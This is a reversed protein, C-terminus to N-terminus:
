KGLKGGTIKNFFSLIAAHPVMMGVSDINAKLVVLGIVNGHDDFVPAGSMGPNVPATTQVYSHGYLVRNTNSVIGNTMTYALIRKGVGPSGIISVHDGTAVNIKLPLLVTSVPTTNIKLLALDRKRDIAILEANAKRNTEVNKRTQKYSVIIKLKKRKPLGHACTLIYGQKSVFFGSSVLGHSFIVVVSSLYKQAILHTSLKKTSASRIGDLMSHTPVAGHKITVKTDRYFPAKTLKAVRPTKHPKKLLSRERESWNLRLCYLSKRKLDDEGVLLINEGNPSFFIKDISAVEEPISPSQNIAIGSSPNFLKIKERTSAAVINLKPNFAVAAPNMGVSLTSVLKRPNKSEFVGIANDKVTKPDCQLGSDAAYAYLSGDNSIAFDTGFFGPQENVKLLSLENSFIRYSLVVDVSQYYRRLRVGTIINVLSGAYRRMQLSSLLIDGSPSILLKKGFAGPLISLENSKEDFLAIKFAKLVSQSDSAYVSVYSRTSAPRSVIDLAQYPLPTTKLVKLNKKSIFDISNRALALFYKKRDVVKIYSKKTDVTKLITKGSPALFYLKSNAAFVAYKRSASHQLSYSTGLIRIPLNEAACSEVTKRSAAELKPLVEVYYRKFSVEGNVEVRIKIRAQGIESERPIWTLCGSDDVQLSAPAHLVTYQGQIPAELINCKLSAGVRITSPMTKANSSITKAQKIKCYYIQRSTEDLIFLAIRSKLTAAANQRWFHHAQRKYAFSHPIGKISDPLTISWKGCENRRNDLKRATALYRNVVFFRNEIVDPLLFREFANSDKTPPSGAYVHKYALWFDGKHYQKLVPAYGSVPAFNKSFIDKYKYMLFRSPTKFGHQQLLISKGSYDFNAFSWKAPTQILLRSKATKVNVDYLSFQKESACAALIRGKYFEDGPASLYILGRENLNISRLEITKGAKVSYLHIIANTHTGIFLNKRIWLSPSPKEINITAVVREREVDWLLVADDYFCSIALYRGDGSLTISTPQIDLPIPEFVNPKFVHRTTKEYSAPKPFLGSYIRHDDGLFFMYINDGHTASLSFGRMWDDLSRRQYISPKKKFVAPADLRWAALQTETSSLSLAQVGNANLTYFIRPNNVDPSITLSSSKILRAPTGFFLLKRSFWYQKKSFQRMYAGHCPIWSPNKNKRFDSTTTTSFNWSYGSCRMAVLMDGRFNFFVITPASRRANRITKTKDKSVDLEIFLAGKEGHGCSAIIKNKFYAGSPASICRVREANLLFENTPKWNMNRSFETIVGNIDNSVYLKDGRSLMITPAKTKIHTQIKQSIVNWVTIIDENKDAIFLFRGDESMETSTAQYGINLPSLTKLPIPKLVGEFMTAKRKPSKLTCTMMRCTKEDFFYLHSFGNSDCAFHHIAANAIKLKFRGRKKKIFASQKIVGLTPSPLQRLLWSADVQLPSAYQRLELRDGVLSYFSQTSTNPIVADFATDILRKPPMGSYLADRSCWLGSSVFQKIIPTPASAGWSGYKMRKLFDSYAFSQVKGCPFITLEQQSVVHLGNSSVSAIFMTPKDPIRRAQGSRTDIEFFERKGFEGCSAIIKGRFHTGSPASLYYPYKNGLFIQSLKKWSVESYVTITSCGFNAVYLKGNRSLLSKPSDCKLNKISETKGIPFITILNNQEQAIAISSADSTAEVASIPHQLNLYEFKVSNVALLAFAIFQTTAALSYTLLLNKM